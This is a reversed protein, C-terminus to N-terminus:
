ASYHYYYYYYDDENLSWKEGGVFEIRKAVLLSSRGGPFNITLPPSRPLGFVSSQPPSLLVPSSQLLDLSISGLVFRAAFSGVVRVLDASM